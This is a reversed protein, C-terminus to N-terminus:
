ARTSRGGKGSEDPAEACSPTRWNAGPLHQVDGIVAFGARLRRLVTSNTGALASGVRDARFDTVETTV